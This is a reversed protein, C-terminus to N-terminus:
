KIHFTLQQTSEGGHGDNASVIFSANGKFDRPVDWAIRGTSSDITMGSPANKLSYVLDDGDNDHATVQYTFTNGDFNFDKRESIMPPLNLIERHLIISQGYTEGDYPTIKVSVKNGRKVPADIQRSTGASEGNRTWEYTLSVEDGDIDSGTADVFLTDGPKFVEPMIQVSSFEPPANQIEITNSLIEWGGVLARAQVKDNKETASANFQSPITNSKVEGNVLWEVEADSINFGHAVAYITSNRNVNVPTIQLSLGGSNAPIVAQSNQGASGGPEQSQQNIIDAKDSSCSFLFLLLIFKLFKNTHNM